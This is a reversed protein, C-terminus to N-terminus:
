RICMFLSADLIFHGVVHKLYILFGSISKKPPNYIEFICSVVGIEENSCELFEIEFKSHRTPYVAVWPM